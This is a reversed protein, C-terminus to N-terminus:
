AYYMWQGKPVQCPSDIDTTKAQYKIRNSGPKHPTDTVVWFGDSMVVYRDKQQDGELDEHIWVPKYEVTMGDIKKYRGMCSAQKQGAGGSSMLLLVNDGQKQPSTNDAMKLADKLNGM